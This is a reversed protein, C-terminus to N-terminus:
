NKEIQIIINIKLGLELKISTTRTRELEPEVILWLMTVFHKLSHKTMNGSCESWGLNTWATATLHVNSYACSRFMSGASTTWLCHSGIIAKISNM